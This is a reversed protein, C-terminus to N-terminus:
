DLERIKSVLVEAIKRLSEVTWGAIHPSLIVQDTSTLYKWDPNNLLGASEISFKEFSTDEYEYVDLCAYSANIQGDVFWHAFPEEWSLAKTWRKFWPLKEAQQEWFKERDAQNNLPTTKSTSLSSNDM